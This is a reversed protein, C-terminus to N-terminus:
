GVRLIVRNEVQRTSKLVKQGKIKKPRSTTEQTAVHLAEEPHLDGRKSDPVLSKKGTNIGNAKILWREFGKLDTFIKTAHFKLWPHEEHGNTVIVYVPKEYLKAYVMEMPTGYSVNGDIHVVLGESKKIEELDRTVVLNFDPKYRDMVGADIKKVDDRGVVDYFPNVLTVGTRKEIVLEWERVRKRSPFPHSLYLNDVKM